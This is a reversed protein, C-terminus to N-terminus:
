LRKFYIHLLTTDQSKYEEIKEERGDGMGEVMVQPVSITNLYFITKISAKKAYPSELSM